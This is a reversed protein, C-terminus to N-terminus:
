KRHWKTRCPVRTSISFITWYGKILKRKLSTKLFVAPGKNQLKKKCIQLYYVWPGKKARNELRLFKLICFFIIICEANCQVYPVALVSKRVCIVFRKFSEDDQIPGELLSWSFIEAYAILFCRAMVTNIRCGALLNSTYFNSSTLRLNNLMWSKFFAKLITRYYRIWGWPFTSSRINKPM